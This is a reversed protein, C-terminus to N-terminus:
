IDSTTVLWDTFQYWSKILYEVFTNFLLPLQSVHYVVDKWLKTIGMSAVSWLYAVMNQLWVNSLVVAKFYLYMTTLALIPDHQTFITDSIWYGSTLPVIGRGYVLLTTKQGLKVTSSTGMRFVTNEGQSLSTSPTSGEQSASMSGRLVTVSINMYHRGTSGYTEVEANYLLLFEHLSAYLVAISGDLGGTHSSIWPFYKEQLIHKPYINRFAQRISPHSYSYGSERQGIEKVLNARFVYSPKIVNFWHLLVYISIVFVATRLKGM